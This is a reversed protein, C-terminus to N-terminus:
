RHLWQPLHNKASIHTKADPDPVGPAAPDFISAAIVRGLPSIVRASRLHLQGCWIADDVSLARPRLFLSTTCPNTLTWEAPGASM